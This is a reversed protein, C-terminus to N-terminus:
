RLEAFITNFNGTGSAKYYYNDPVIVSFALSNTGDATPSSVSGLTIFTSNDSSLQFNGAGTTTSGGAGGTTITSAEITCNVQIPKGTTNQTTGTRTYIAWSQGVGIPSSGTPVLAEVAAKMKAPSVLSETTGTGTQWTATTQDGLLGAPTGGAGVLLTNDLLRFEGSSQDVNGINIWDDNSLTRMRLNRSSTDYWLMNALPAVPELPGSNTSGLAKLALNINLRATNSTVNDIELAHQSM